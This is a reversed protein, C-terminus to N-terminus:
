RRFLNGSPHDSGHISSHCNLCGQAFAFMANPDSTDLKGELALSRHGLSSHCSQCLQPVRTKLLSAQNSGHPAHCISCDEVVPPHEWTFPGRMETHCQFCSENLSEGKVIEKSAVATGHPDHCDTCILHSDQIPHSSRQTLELAVDLHCTMCISPQNARTRIQDVSNHIEHCNACALDALQHPSARWHMRNYDEHCALCLQNQLDVKANGREGFNLMAERVAGEPLIKAGHEALPGHCAECQLGAPLKSSDSIEFPTGRFNPHGHINAFILATPFPEEEDHCGLCGDAGRRSYEGAALKDALLQHIQQHTSDEAHTGESSIVAFSAVAIVLSVLCIRAVGVTAGREFIERM